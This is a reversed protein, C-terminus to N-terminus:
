KKFRSKTIICERIEYFDNIQLSSGPIILSGRIITTFNNLGQQAVLLWPTKLDSSCWTNRDHTWMMHQHSTCWTNRDVTIHKTNTNWEVACCQVGPHSTRRLYNLSVSWLAILFAPRCSLVGGAVLGFSLVVALKICPATTACQDSDCKDLHAVTHIKTSSAEGSTLLVAVCFTVQSRYELTSPPLCM